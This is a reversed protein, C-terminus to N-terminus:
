LRRRLEGIANRIARINEDAADGNWRMARGHFYVAARLDDTSAARPNAEVQRAIEYLEDIPRPDGDPGGILECFHELERLPASAPPIDPVTPM